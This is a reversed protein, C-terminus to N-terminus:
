GTVIAPVSKECDIPPTMLGEVVVPPQGKALRFTRQTAKAGGAQVRRAYRAAMALTAQQQATSPAYTVVDIRVDNTERDKTLAFCGQDNNVTQSVISKQDVDVEAGVAVTSLYERGSQEVSKVWYSSYFFTGLVLVVAPILMLWVWNKGMGRAAFVIVWGLAISILGPIFPGPGPAHGSSQTFTNSFSIAATAFLVFLMWGFGYSLVNRDREMAAIGDREAITQQNRRTGSGAKSRPEDDPEVMADRKIRVAAPTAPALKPTNSVPALRPMPQEPEAVEGQYPDIESFGFETPAASAGNGNGNGNIPAPEPAAPQPQDDGYIDLGLRARQAPSLKGNKNTPLSNAPTEESQPAEDAPLPLASIPLPAAGGSSNHRAPKPAM